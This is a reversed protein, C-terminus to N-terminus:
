IMQIPSCIVCGLLAFLTAAVLSLAFIVKDRNYFKRVICAMVPISTFPIIFIFIWVPYKKKWTVIKRATRLQKQRNRPKRRKNLFAMIQAFFVYFVVFGIIAGIATALWTMMFSMGGAFGISPAFLTKFTAFFVITIFKWIM